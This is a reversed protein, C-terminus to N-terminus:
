TDAVPLYISREESSDVKTGRHDLRPRAPGRAPPVAVTAVRRSNAGRTVSRRGTTTEASALPRHSRGADQRCSRQQFPHRPPDAQRSQVVKIPEQPSHVCVANPQLKHRPVLRESNVISLLARLPNARAVIPPITTSPNLRVPMEDCPTSERREHERRRAHRRRPRPHPLCEPHKQPIRAPVPRRGANVHQYMHHDPQNRPLQPCPHGDEEAPAPPDRTRCSAAPLPVVRDRPQEIGLQPPFLARVRTTRGPPEPDCGPRRFTSRSRHGSGTAPPGRGPEPPGRRISSQNARGSTSARDGRQAQGARRSGSGVPTAGARIRPRDPGSGPLPRRGRVV